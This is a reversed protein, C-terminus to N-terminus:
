KCSKIKKIDKNLGYLAAWESIMLSNPTENCGCYECEPKSEVCSNCPPSIHCSCNEPVKFSVLGGCLPCDQGEELYHKPGFNDRTNKRLQMKTTTKISLKSTVM